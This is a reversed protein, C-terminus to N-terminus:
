FLVPEHKLNHSDLYRLIARSSSSNSEAVGRVVRASRAHVEDYSWLRVGFMCICAISDFGGDYFSSEM